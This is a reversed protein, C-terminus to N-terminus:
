GEQTDLVPERGGTQSTDNIEGIKQMIKDFMKYYGGAGAHVWGFNENTQWVFSRQTVTRDVKLFSNKLMTANQPFKDILYDTVTLARDWSDFYSDNLLTTDVVKTWCPLIYNLNNPIHKECLKSCGTFLVFPVNIEKQINALSQYFEKCLQEALQDIDSYMDVISVKDVDIINSKPICLNRLPDTQCILIAGCDKLIERRKNISQLIDNNSYGGVSFNQVKINHESFLSQFTVNYLLKESGPLNVGPAFLNLPVADNPNQIKEYACVTWSDGFIAASRIV